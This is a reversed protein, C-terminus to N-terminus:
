GGGREYGNGDEGVGGEIQCGGSGAGYQFCEVM